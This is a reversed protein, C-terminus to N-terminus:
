DLKDVASNIPRFQALNHRYSEGIEQKSFEILDETEHDFQERLKSVELKKEKEFTKWKDCIDLVQHFLRMVIVYCNM